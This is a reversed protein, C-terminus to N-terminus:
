YWMCCWISGHLAIGDDFVLLYPSSVIVYLLEFNAYVYM